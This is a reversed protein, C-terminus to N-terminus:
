IVAVVTKDSEIASKGPSSASCFTETTPEDKNIMPPTRPTPNSAPSDVYEQSEQTSSEIVNTHTHAKEEQAVPDVTRAELHQGQDHPQLQSNQFESSYLALSPEKVQPLCVDHSQSKTETQSYHSYHMVQRGQIPFQRRDDIRHMQGPIPPMELSPTHSHGQGKGQYMERPPYELSSTHSHGYDDRIEMRSLGLSATNAHGRKKQMSREEMSPGRDQIYQSSSHHPLRQRYIDQQQRHQHQVHSMSHHNTKQRQDDGLIGSTEVDMDSQYSAPPHSSQRSVKEPSSRTDPPSAYYEVPDRLDDTHGGTTQLSTSDHHSYSLQQHEQITDLQLMLGDLHKADQERHTSFEMMKHFDVPTGSHKRSHELLSDSRAFKKGCGGYTCEFPKEGTHTRMHRIIQHHKHFPKQKVVCNEWECTYHSKGLGIHAEEVHSVLWELAGFIQNCNKWLCTWTSQIIGASPPSDVSKSPVPVSTRIKFSAIMSGPIEELPPYGSEYEDETIDVSLRRKKRDSGHEIRSIISEDSTTGNIKNLQADLQYCVAKLDVYNANKLEYKAHLESFERRARELESNTVSFKYELDTNIRQLADIKQCLFGNKKILTSLQETLSGEIERFQRSHAEWFRGLMAQLDTISTVEQATNGSADRSDRIDKM